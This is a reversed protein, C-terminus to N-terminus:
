ADLAEQATYPARDILSRVHDPEFGRGAAIGDVLLDFWGDLAASIAERSEPSHETREYQEGASKYEGATFFEPEVKLKDLGERLFLPDSYLGLLNVAGVPALHIRDCAAALLYGLSGNSAEGVTEFYCEVFKGADAFARLQRRFEAAKAFGFGTGRIYLALGKVEPAELGRRFGRYLSSVSPAHLGSTFTFLDPQTREPIPGQVHWVLVTPGGLGPGPRDSLLIGALTAAAALLVLVLFIILLRKM